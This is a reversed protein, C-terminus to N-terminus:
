PHQRLHMHWTPRLDRQDTLDLENSPRLPHTLGLCVQVLAMTKFQEHLHSSLRQFEEVTLSRPQKRRRQPEGCLSWRYRTLEWRFPERGCRTTLWAICFNGCTAARRQPSRCPILGCSWRVHSYTRSSINAGDALPTSTSGCDQFASHATALNPCTRREPVM